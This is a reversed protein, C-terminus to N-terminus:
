SWLRLKREKSVTQTFVLCYHSRFRNGPTIQEDGSQSRASCMMPFVIEKFHASLTCTIDDRMCARTVTRGYAPARAFHTAIPTSSPYALRYRSFLACGKAYLASCQPVVVLLPQVGMNMCQQIPHNETFDFNGEPCRTRALTVAPSWPRSKVGPGTEVSVCFQESSYMMQFPDLGQECRPRAFTRKSRTPSRTAAIPLPRMHAVTPVILCAFQSSNPQLCARLALITCCCLMRWLLCSERSTHSNESERGASWWAHM